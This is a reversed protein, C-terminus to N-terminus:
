NGTKVKIYKREKGDDNLLPIINNEDFFAKTKDEGLLKSTIAYIFRITVQDDELLKIIKSGNTMLKNKDLNNYLLKYWDTKDVYGWISRDSIDRDYDKEALEKYVLSNKTDILINDSYDPTLKKILEKAKETTYNNFFYNIIIKNTVPYGMDLIKNRERENLLSWSINSDKDNDILIYKGYSEYGISYQSSYDYFKNDIFGKKAKILDLINNVKYKVMEDSLIKLVDYNIATKRSSKTLNHIDSQIVTLFERDSEIYPIKNQIDYRISNIESDSINKLKEEGLNIYKDIYSKIYNFTYDNDNLKPDDILKITLTEKLLRFDFRQSFDYNNDETTEVNLDNISYYKNLQYDKINNFIRIKNILLTNLGKIENITAGYNDTFRKADSIVIDISTIYKDLNELYPENSFIRDEYENSRAKETANLNPWQWYDIPKGKYKSNLANGDFEITVISNKSFGLELNKTRSFSLFYLKKGYNDANTGISSSLLIKNNKLINLLANLSTRHYIINSVSESLINFKLM